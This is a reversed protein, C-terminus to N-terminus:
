NYFVVLGVIFMMIIDGYVFVIDLKVKKMVDDLGELGRIMVDM